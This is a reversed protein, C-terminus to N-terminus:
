STLFLAGLSQLCEIEVYYKQEGHGGALADRDNTRIGHFHLPLAACLLMPKRQRQDLSPCKPEQTKKEAGYSSYSEYAM